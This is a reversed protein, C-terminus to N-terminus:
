RYVDKRHGIDLVLVEGPISRVVYLIRYDGSRLRFVPEGAVTRRGKLQKSGQPHPTVSLANAKSIIQARPKSPITALYDLAADSFALALKM